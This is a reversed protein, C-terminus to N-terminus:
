GENTPSTDSLSRFPEPEYAELARFWGGHLLDRIVPDDKGLWALHRLAHEVVHDIDIAPPPEFASGRALERRRVESAHFGHVSPTPGDLVALYTVVLRGREFRWSTSHVAVPHVGYAALASVVADGPHASGDGDVQLSPGPAPRLWWIEGDKLYVPLIEIVTRSRDEAGAVQQIAGALRAAVDGKESHEATNAIMALRDNLLTLMQGAVTPEAKLLRLFGERGFEFVVTPGEAVADATRPGRDLLGLEGFVEGPGMRGLLVETGGETSSAVRVTGRVVIYVSTGGGGRGFIVEGDEFSREVPPEMAELSAAGLGSLPGAVSDLLPAVDPRAVFSSRHAEDELGDAMARLIAAARAREIEADWLKGAVSLARSAIAAARWELMREGTSRAKEELARARALIGEWEGELAGAAVRAYEAWNVLLPSEGAALPGLREAVARLEEADGAEEWALVEVQGNQLRDLLVDDSRERGERFLDLARAKEGRHVAVWGAMTFVRPLGFKSKLRDAIAFCERLEAEVLDFRRLEALLGSGFSRIALELRPTRLEVAIRTAEEMDVLAPGLEGAPYRAIARGLAFGEDRRNGVERCGEVAEDFAELAEPLRGKYYLTYGVMYLNHYVMPRQGLSRFLEDARRGEALAQDLPGLFYKTECLGHRALAEGAPDGGEQAVRLAEEHMPLAERYRGGGFKLTGATYLLRALLHRDGVSRAKDLADALILEGEEFRDQLWHLHALAGLSQAELQGHGAARADALAREYDAQAEVFQGLLERAEGRSLAIEALLAHDTPGPSSEAARLARDYRQIAEHTAFLRRSRHGALLSYRATKPIDGAQEAHFALIEAFEEDRGAMKEEVWSLAEAHAAARRTKPISAYAVDRTLIHNFILEREGEVVSTDRQWVLGKHVLVDITSTAGPSGLRALAGPWFIRGVVAADQLIRKEQIPLMDIRSAIVGQVTDPLSAPIPRELIWEGNSRVLSGADVVMRLLEQAYFPNGEARALLPQIAEDPAPLEDLLHRIMHEGDESSLPSLSVTTSSRLGGGWGPRREVLDPRAMAVFMVRSTVRGALYEVLDLLGADAWHLDELLALVPQDSALSDFYAKWSRAILEKAASPEAGVLPDTPVPVGVSSLLVQVTGTHESVEFRGLFARAAKELIAEPQDSDLIGADAKLIEAMPWYTLGEGYPLCRGRVIRVPRSALTRQAFEHALRSKGIGAPGVVTVLSAGGERLTRSLLLELLELESDRGVMPVAGIAGPRPEPAATSDLEGTVQWAPLPRDIGKVPVEGLSRYGIAHRTDRYTREGVVIEGSPALAQFRAAVNVPEGTVLNERDVGTATVVEGTNLGIRMGLEVETSEGADANLAALRRQMALATRVAREPDDEHAAPVGFVAVVADGIFKEVTGDHREIEEVMAQFFRRLVVRLDEPDLRAALETSATLDAFLVTVVKREELETDPGAEGGDQPAGCVGCFRFQSPVEAGCSACVKGLSAGCAGCFRFGPPNVRGCVPCPAQVSDVLSWDGESGSM